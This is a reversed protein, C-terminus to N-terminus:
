YETSCLFGRGLEAWQAATKAILEAGDDEPGCPDGGPDCWVALEEGPDVESWDSDDFDEVDGGRHEVWAARADDLNDAVVWDSTDTFLKM